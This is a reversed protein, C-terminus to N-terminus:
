VVRFTITCEDRYHNWCQAYFQRFNDSAGKFKIPNLYFQSHGESRELNLGGQWRVEGPRECISVQFTEQDNVEVTKGCDRLDFHKM